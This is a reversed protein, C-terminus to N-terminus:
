FTAASIFTLTDTYDNASPTVNSTKTKIVLSARGNSVPAYSSHYLERVTSDLIGVNEGSGAYPSVATLGSVSDSRVGFGETASSLNTSASDITHNANSSRLGAYQDYVYVFGGSEANTDIDVWVKNTATTIGGITLQGMSVTYPAATETDTSAVDIDFSLSLAETAASDEPGYPGETFDGQNAKVKVKYTTGATLGIVYEGTGSGWATYTQYDEIGLTSGVTGDNQVYETTVWNDDTIAIAYLTDSPNNATDIILNLKNYWSAGNTLTPVGPTNAQQVIILGSNARFNTSSLAGGIEGTTGEAKFNTSSM